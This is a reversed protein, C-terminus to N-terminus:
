AGKPPRFQFQCQPCRVQGDKLPKEEDGRIEERLRTKSWDEQEARDLWEDQQDEELGAVEAHHSFSLNERRRSPDFKGAVWAWNMMTQKSRDVERLAQSYMEGFKEEGYRLWDGVWWPVASELVKLSEGAAMWQEITLGEELILATTALKGPIGLPALTM